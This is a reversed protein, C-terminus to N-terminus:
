LISSKSESTSAIQSSCSCSIRSTGRSCACCGCCRMCAAAARTVSSSCPPIRKRIPISYALQGNLGGQPTGRLTNRDLGAPRDNFILDGNDDLGTRETYVNGSQLNWYLFASLNRLM